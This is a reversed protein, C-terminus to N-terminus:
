MWILNPWQSNKLCHNKVFLTTCMQPHSRLSQLHSPMRLLPTEAEDLQHQQQYVFGEQPLPPCIQQRSSCCQMIEKEKRKKEWSFM